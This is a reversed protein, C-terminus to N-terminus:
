QAGDCNFTGYGMTIARHVCLYMKREPSDGGETLSEANHVEGRIIKVKELPVMPLVEHECGECDIKLFAIKDINFEELIDRFTTTKIDVLEDAEEAFLGSGGPNYASYKIKFSRGDRTVGRNIAVVNTIGNQQLNWRLFAYNRPVPEFAYIRAQPFKKAALLSFAGVNGGIDIIVEGATITLPELGYVDEQFENVIHDIGSSVEDDCIKLPIGLFKTEITKAKAPLEAPTSPPVLKRPRAVDVRAPVSDSQILLDGEESHHAPSTKSDEYYTYALFLTAFVAIVVLLQTRDNRTSIHDKSNRRGM